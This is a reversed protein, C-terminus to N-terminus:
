RLTYDSIGNTFLMESPFDQIKDCASSTAFNNGLFQPSFSKNLQKCLSMVLISKWHCLIDLFNAWHSLFSVWHRRRLSKRPGGPHNRDWYGTVVNHLYACSQANQFANAQHCDGTFKNASFCFSWSSRFPGSTTAGLYNQIDTPEKYLWSMQLGRDLSFCFNSFINHRWNQGGNNDKKMIIEAKVTTSRSNGTEEKSTLNLVWILQGLHVLDSHHKQM